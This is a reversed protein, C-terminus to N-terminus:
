HHDADAAQSGRPERVQLPFFICAGCRCPLLLCAVNMEARATLTGTLTGTCVGMGLWTHPVGLPATSLGWRFMHMAREEKGDVSSILFMIVSAPAKANSMPKMGAVLPANILVRGPFCVLPSSPPAAPTLFLHSRPPVRPAPQRACYHHSGAAAWATHGARPRLAGSDTTFVFYPKKGAADEGTARRLTLTGQLPPLIPSTSAEDRSHAPPMTLAFPSRWHVAVSCVYICPCM